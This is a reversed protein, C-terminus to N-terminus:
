AYASRASFRGQVPRNVQHAKNPGWRLVSNRGSREDGSYLNYIALENQGECDNAESERYDFPRLFKFLRVILLVAEISGESM